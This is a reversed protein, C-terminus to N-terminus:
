EIGPVKGHASGSLYHYGMGWLSTSNIHVIPLVHYIRDDMSCVSRFSGRHPLGTGLALTEPRILCLGKKM